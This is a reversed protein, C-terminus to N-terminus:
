SMLSHADSILVFATMPPRTIQRMMAWSVMCFVLDASITHSCALATCCACLVLLILLTTEQHISQHNYLLTTLDFSGTLCYQQLISHKIESQMTWM